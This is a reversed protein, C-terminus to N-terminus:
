GRPLEKLVEEMVERCIFVERVVCGVSGRGANSYHLLSFYLFLLILTCPLKTNEKGVAM